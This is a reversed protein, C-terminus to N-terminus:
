QCLAMTALKTSVSSYTRLPKSDAARKKLYWLTNKKIGLKKAEATSLRRISERLIKSDQKALNPAPDAFDLTKGKGLIYSALEQAKLQTITDWQYNRGRFHM